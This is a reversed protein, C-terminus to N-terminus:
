RTFTLIYSIKKQLYKQPIFIYYIYNYPSFEELPYRVGYVFSHFNIKEQFHNMRKLNKFFFM